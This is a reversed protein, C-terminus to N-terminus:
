GLPQSSSSTWSPRRAGAPCGQTFSKELVVRLRWRIKLHRLLHRVNRNYIETTVLTRIETAKERVGVRRSFCPRRYRQLPRSYGVPYWRARGQKVRRAANSTSSFAMRSEAGTIVCIKMNNSNVISRGKAQELSFYKKVIKYLSIMFMYSLDAKISTRSTQFNLNVSCHSLCFRLSRQGKRGNKQM